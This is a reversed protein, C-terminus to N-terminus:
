AALRCAVDERSSFGERASKQTHQHEARRMAKLPKGHAGGKQMIAALTLLNRPREQIKVVPKRKSM